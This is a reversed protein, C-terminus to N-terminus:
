HHTLKRQEGDSSRRVLLLDGFRTTGEGPGVEELVTDGRKLKAIGGLRAPAFNEGDEQHIRCDVGDCRCRVYRRLLRLPCGLRQQMRQVVGLREIRAKWLLQDIQDLFLRRHHCARFSFRVSKPEHLLACGKDLFVQIM